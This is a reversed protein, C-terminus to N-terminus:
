SKKPKADELKKLNLIYQRLFSGKMKTIEDLDKIEITEAYFLSRNSDIIDDICKNYAINHIIKCLKKYAELESDFVLETLCCGFSYKESSYRVSDNTREKIKIPVVEMDEILYAKNKQDQMKWNKLYFM